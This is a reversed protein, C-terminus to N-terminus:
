RAGRRRRRVRAAIEEDEASLEELEVQQAIAAACDERVGRQGEEVARAQAATDSRSRRSM